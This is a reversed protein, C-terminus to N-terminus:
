ETFSAENSQGHLARNQFNGAEVFGKAIVFHELTNIQADALAL